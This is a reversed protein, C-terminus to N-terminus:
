ANRKAAGAVFGHVTLYFGFVAAFGLYLYFVDGYRLWRLLVYTTLASSLDRRAM